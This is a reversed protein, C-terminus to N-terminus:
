KSPIIEILQNTLEESVLYVTHTDTTQMIMSKRGEEGVWLHYAEKDGNEYFVQFTYDPSSVDVIGPQKAATTIVEKFLSLTDAEEYTALFDDNVQGFGSAKALTVKILENGKEQQCGILSLLLVLSLLLLVIKKM